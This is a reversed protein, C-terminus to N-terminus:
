KKLKSELKILAPYYKCGFERIHDQVIKKAVNPNKTHEMELNIWRKKICGGM